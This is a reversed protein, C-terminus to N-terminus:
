LYFIFPLNDVKDYQSKVFDNYRGTFAQKYRPLMIGLALDIQQDKTFPCSLLRLIRFFKMVHNVHLPFPNYNGQKPIKVEVTDDTPIPHFMITINHLAMCEYDRVLLGADAVEQKKAM